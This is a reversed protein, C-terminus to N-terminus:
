LTSGRHKLIAGVQELALALDETSLTEATTVLKRMLRLRESDAPPEEDESFEFFDRIPVGLRSALRDLTEFGPLSVGRELNSVADVSRDIAAALDEQTLGQRARLRRIQQGVKQKIDM